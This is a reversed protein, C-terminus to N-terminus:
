RQLLRSIHKHVFSLSYTAAAVIGAARARAAAAAQGLTVAVLAQLRSSASGPTGASSCVTGRSCACRTGREQDGRQGTCESAWGPKCGLGVRDWAPRAYGSVRTRRSAGMCTARRHHAFSTGSCDHLTPFTLSTLRRRSMPRPGPVPGARPGRALEGRARRRARAAGRQDGEHLVDDYVEERHDDPPEVDLLPRQRSAPLRAWGPRAAPPTPAALAAPAPTHLLRKTRTGSTRM